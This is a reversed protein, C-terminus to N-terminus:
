RSTDGTQARWASREWVSGPVQTLRGWSAPGAPLGSRARWRRPEASTEPPLAEVLLPVADGGSGETDGRFSLARGGVRRDFAVAADAGIRAVVVPVGGVETEYPGDRLRDLSVFRRAGGVEMGYGLFLAATRPGYSDKRLPRPDSDPPMPLVVTGPHERRWAGFTMVTAPLRRLAAGRLPGAMAEGTLHHWLSDTGRDYLLFSNHWLIGSHGFRLTEAPRGPARSLTRVHVM